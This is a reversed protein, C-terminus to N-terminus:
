FDYDVSVRWSAGQEYNSPNSLRSDILYQLAAPESPLESPRFLGEGMEYGKGTFPDIRRPVRNDFINRGYVALNVKQGYLRFAKNLRTDVTLAFPGNKSYPKAAQTSAESAPTYARGSQGLVYVNLGADRLWPYRKPAERDFRLDLNLTAKHPRNWYVFAEGLRTESADGGGAELIKAENPDSGKGTAQSFSYSAKASWIGTRRKEFEVEYGTTRAFDGNLYVLVDVLSAGQTRRFSTSTPYNYVDKLFFTVNVATNRSTQTNAGVEYQM